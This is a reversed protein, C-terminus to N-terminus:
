NKPVHSQKLRNKKQPNRKKTNPSKPPPSTIHKNIKGLGM